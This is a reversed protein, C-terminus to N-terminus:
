SLVLSMFRSLYSKGGSQHKELNNQKGGKPSGVDHWVYRKWGLAHMCQGVTIIGSSIADRKASLAALNLGTVPRRVSSSRM